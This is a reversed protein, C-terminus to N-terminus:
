QIELLDNDNLSSQLHKYIELFALVISKKESFLRSVASFSGELTQRYVLMGVGQTMLEGRSVEGEFDLARCAIERHRKDASSSAMTQLASAYMAM